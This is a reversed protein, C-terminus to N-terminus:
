TTLARVSGGGQRGLTKPTLLDIAGAVTSRGPATAGFPQGKRHMVLSNRLGARAALEALRRSFVNLDLVRDEAHDDVLQWALQRDGLQNPLDAWFFSVRYLPRDGIQGCGTEQPTLAVRHQRRPRGQM